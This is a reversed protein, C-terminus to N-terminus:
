QVKDLAQLYALRVNHLTEGLYEQEEPTLNGDIHHLLKDRDNM